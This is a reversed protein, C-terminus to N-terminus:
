DGAPLGEARLAEAEEHDLFIEIRTALGDADFTWVTWADVDLEIGSGAGRLRVRVRVLVRDGALTLDVLELAQEELADPEM